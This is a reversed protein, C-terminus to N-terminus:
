PYESPKYEVLINMNTKYNALRIVWKDAGYKYEEVKTRRMPNLNFEYLLRAPFPTRHRVGYDTM